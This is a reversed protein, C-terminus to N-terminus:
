LLPVGFLAGGESRFPQAFQTPTKRRRPPVPPAFARRKTTRIPQKNRCVLSRLFPESAQTIHWISIFVNYLNDPRFDVRLIVTKRDFKQPFNVYRENFVSDESKESRRTTRPLAAAAPEDHVIGFFFRRSFLPLVSAFSRPYKADESANAM